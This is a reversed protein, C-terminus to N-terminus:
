IQLMYSAIIFSTIIGAINAILACVVTYRSNKINGASCYVSLTYLITETCCMMISASLGILTDTGFNEYIDLLIGTAASSSLMKMIGLSILEKPFGLFSSIPEFVSVLMDMGGSARFIGIATMLGLLSPIVGTVTKIGESAGETFASFVDTKKIVASAVIILFVLPLMIQSIYIIFNM